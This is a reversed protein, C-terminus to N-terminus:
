DCGEEDVWKYITAAYAHGAFILSILLIFSQKMEAVERKAVGYDM